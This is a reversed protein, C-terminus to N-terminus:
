TTDDRTSPLYTMGKLNNKYERMIFGISTFQKHTLIFLLTKEKTTIFSSILPIGSKLQVNTTRLLIIRFDATKYDLSTQRKKKYHPTITLLKISFLWCFFDSNLRSTQLYCIHTFPCQSIVYLCCLMLCSCTELYLGM